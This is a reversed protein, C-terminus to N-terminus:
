FYCKMKEYVTDMLASVKNAIKEINVKNFIFIRIQDVFFGIAFVLSTCLLVFLLGKVINMNSIFVFRNIFISEWVIENNQLLYIGTTTSSIIGIIKNNSKIRSCVVLLVMASLLMTPSIYNVLRTSTTIMMLLWTISVCILYVVLLYPTKITEFLRIKKMISGIIYLTLLWIFSYGGGMYNDVLMGGCSFVAILTFLLKKSTDTSMKSICENIYPGVFFLPFYSTMYWFKGSLIPLAFKLAEWASIQKGVNFAKLIFTVIFSYFFVEIWLKIMRKYNTKKSNSIYGSILAYGDVACIAFYDLLYYISKYKCNAFDLVGGYELLHQLCIYFTLIIRYFEIGLNKKNEM